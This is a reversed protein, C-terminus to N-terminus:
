SELMLENDNEFSERDTNAIAVPDKNIYHDLNAEYEGTITVIMKM